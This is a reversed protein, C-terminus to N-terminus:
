ALKVKVKQGRITTRNLKAIIAQAHEATVDVFVHRERVDVKGVTQPPLGTEGMIAGVVDGPAVGMEAGVNMYLRTQNAPTRHSEKPAFPAPPGGPKPPAGFKSPRAPRVPAIDPAGEDPAARRMVTKPASVPRPRPEFGRERNFDPRAPRDDRRDDRRDDFRGPRPATDNRFQAPRAERDM